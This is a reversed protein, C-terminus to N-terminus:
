LGYAFLDDPQFQDGGVVGRVCGDKLSISRITSSEADALYVCDNTSDYEIGSPQAFSAQLPYSNNKNREKGNGAVCVLTNWEFKLGRWWAIGNFDNLQHTLLKNEFSYLWIQHTGACAILLIKTNERNLLCLDWPSSIPQETALKGGNLDYYGLNKEIMHPVGCVTSVQDSNLDACRIVNNFTDCIYLCNTESDLALGQPWNFESEKLSSNVLGIKGNGIMYKIENMTEIGLVRNNGSDSIFLISRASDLCLKTPFSIKNTSSDIQDFSMHHELLNLNNNLQNEYYKFCIKLFDRVLNAQTEGVFEAIVQGHPNVVLLTPWCMIQMDSWVTLDSDCVVPHKILHRRMANYINIKSKENTFKSSHVGIVCM